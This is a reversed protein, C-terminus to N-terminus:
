TLHTWRGCLRSDSAKHMRAVGGVPGKSAASASIRDDQIWAM